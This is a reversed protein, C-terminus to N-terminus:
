TNPIMETKEQGCTPCITRHLKTQGCSCLYGEPIKWNPDGAIVIIHGGCCLDTTSDIIGEM